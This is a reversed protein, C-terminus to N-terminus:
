RVGEEVRLPSLSQSNYQLRASGSGLPTSDSALKLVRSPNDTNFINRSLKPMSTEKLKPLLMAHSFKNRRSM